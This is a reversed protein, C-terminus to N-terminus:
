LIDRHIICQMQLLLRCLPFSCLFGTMCYGSLTENAKVKINLHLYLEWCRHFTTFNENERLSSSNM